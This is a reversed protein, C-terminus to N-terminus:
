QDKPHWREHRTISIPDRSFTVRLPSVYSQDKYGLDDLTGGVSPCRECRWGGLASHRRPQHGYYLCLLSSLM